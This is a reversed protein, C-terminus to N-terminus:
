YDHNFMRSSSKFCCRRHNNRSKVFSKGPFKKSFEFYKQNSLAKIPSTYIVKTHKSFATCIAYEAVVTKGASTHAAVFVNECNEIYYISLKQFFDLKFPYERVLKRAILYNDVQAENPHTKNCSIEVSQSPIFRKLDISQFNQQKKEEQLTDNSSENNVNQPIVDSLGQKIGLKMIESASIEKLINSLYKESNQEFDSEYNKLKKHYNSFITNQKEKFLSKILHKDKESIINYLISPDIPSHIKRHELLKGFYIKNEIKIQEKSFHSLQESIDNTKIFTPDKQIYHDLM